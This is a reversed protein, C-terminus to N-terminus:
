TRWVFFFNNKLRVVGTGKFETGLFVVHDRFIVTGALEILKDINFVFVKM